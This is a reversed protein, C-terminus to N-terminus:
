PEARLDTEDCQEGEYTRGFTMPGPRVLALARRGGPINIVTLDFDDCLFRHAADREHGVHTLTDRLIRRLADAIGADRCRRIDTEIRTPPFPIIAAGNPM